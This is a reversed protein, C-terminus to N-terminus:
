TGYTEQLFTNWQAVEAEYSFGELPQARLLMDLVPKEGYKAILYGVFSDAAGQNPDTYQKYHAYFHTFDIYDTFFDTERGTRARYAQYVKLGSQNGTMNALYTSETNGYHDYYYSFYAVTGNYKWDAQTFCDQVLSQIYCILLSNVYPMAIAHRQPIYGGKGNGYHNTFYINLDNNYSDLAFLVQYQAMEGTVTTLYQKIERYSKRLFGDYYLPLLKTNKDVWDAEMYITAYPTKVIYAYGCGGPRYLIVSPSHSIGRSQYFATLASSFAEQEETKGSSALLERFAEEGHRGIYDDAFTNAVRKATKIDQAPFLAPRFCLWNMDLVDIDGSFKWDAECLSVNAGFLEQALFSAYGYAAGYNCYEGYISLLLSAIYDASKWGQVHTYLMREAVFSEQYSEFTYVTIQDPQEGIRQLVTQTAQICAAREKLSIAKEFAYSVGGLQTVEMTKNLSFGAGIGNRGESLVVSEETFNLQAIDLQTPQTPMPDETCGWLTLMLSCALLLSIWKKM